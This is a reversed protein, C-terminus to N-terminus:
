WGIPPALASLAGAVGVAALVIGWFGSSRRGGTPPHAAAVPQGSRGGARGDGGGAGCRRRGALPTLLPVLIVIGAIHLASVWLSARLHHEIMLLTIAYVEVLFLPAAWILIRYVEASAGYDGGFLLRLLEPAVGFSIAAAPLVALLGFRLSLAQLRAYRDVAHRQLRSM